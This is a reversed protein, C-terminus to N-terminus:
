QPTGAVPTDTVEGSVLDISCDSSSTKKGSANVVDYKCALTSGTVSVITYQRIETKTSTKETLNREEKSTLSYAFIDIQKNGLTDNVYFLFNNDPSWTCTHKNKVVQEANTGDINSIYITPDTAPPISEFCMKTNDPSVAVHAFGILGSSPYEEKKILIKTEGVSTMRAVDGNSIQIENPNFPVETPTLQTVTQNETDTTDKTKNGIFLYAVVGWVALLIIISIIVFIGFGGIGKKSSGGTIVSQAGQPAEPIPPQPPIPTQPAPMPPLPQPVPTPAPAGQPPVIPPVTTPDM